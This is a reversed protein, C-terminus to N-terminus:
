RDSQRHVAAYMELLAAVMASVTYNTRIHDQACRALRRAFEQDDLLQSLAKHISSNDSPDFVMATRGPIILSDVGGTCAAVAAGLGMAELLFVSFSRSPQPQVFIDAAAIVSLWPDLVPVITVSPSLGISVLHKRLRRDERGSGMIVTMFERGEGLLAKIADFFHVLRGVHNLPCAVVMSPMRSPNSFCVIDTQAFTGMNIQQIRDALGLHSKAVQSAIVPAAAVIRACRRPCIPLGSLPYALSNISLVYPIDLRAALKKVLSARSECLCHLVTPRFREMQNALPEIVFPELLPLDVLPHSFVRMPTPALREVDCQAPSVLGVSVSEDALGVLLHRLVTTHETVNRRSAILVPRTAKRPTVTEVIGPEVMRDMWCHVGEDMGVTAQM